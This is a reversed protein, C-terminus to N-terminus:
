RFITANDLFCIVVHHWEDKSLRVNNIFISKRCINRWVIHLFCFFLSLGSLRDKNQLYFHFLKTNNRCYFNIRNFAPISFRNLLYVITAKVDVVVFGISIIDIYQMRTCTFDRCCGCCLQQDTHIVHVHYQVKAHYTGQCLFHIVDSKTNDFLNDVVLKICGFNIM